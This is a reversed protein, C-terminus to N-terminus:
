KIRFLFKFFREPAERERRILAIRTPLGVKANTVPVSVARFDVEAFCPVPELAGSGLAVLFSYLGERVEVRSINGLEKRRTTAVEFAPGFGSELFRSIKEQRM